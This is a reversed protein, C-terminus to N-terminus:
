TWCLTEEKLAPVPRQNLPRTHLFVSGRVRPEKICLSAWVTLPELPCLAVSPFVSDCGWGMGVRSAMSMSHCTSLLPGFDHQLRDRVCYGDMQADTCGGIRALTQADSM